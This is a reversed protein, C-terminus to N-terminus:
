FFVVFHVVNESFIRINRLNLINEYRTPIM